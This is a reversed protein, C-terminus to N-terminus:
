REIVHIVGNATLINSEIIRSGNIFIAGNANTTVVLKTKGATLFSTGATLATSYLLGSVIYNKATQASAITANNLASNQPAFVTVDSADQISPSAHIINGVDISLVAATNALSYPPAM